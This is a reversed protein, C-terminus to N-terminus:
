KAALAKDIKKLEAGAIDIRKGSPTFVVVYPLAELRSGLEGALPSDFDVLDLKRVAVDPRAAVVTRLHEDVTRCPGCWDAYIDFVTYKGQVRLRPLPGVKSGDKTLWAVDAGPPYEPHPLYAGRGPGVFAQLGAREVAALVVEDGVSDDLKVTLEVESRDFEVKGIGQEKDLEDKIREACSACDAGQISYVQVRDARVPVALLVFSLCLLARKM